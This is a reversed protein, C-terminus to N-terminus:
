PSSTLITLRGERLDATADKSLGPGVRTGFEERPMLWRRHPM